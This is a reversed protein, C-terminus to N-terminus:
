RAGIHAPPQPHKHYLLSPVLEPVCVPPRPLSVAASASLRAPRQRAHECYTPNAATIGRIIVCPPVSPRIIHYQRSQRPSAHPIRVRVPRLVQGRASPCAPAARRAFPLIKFASERFPPPPHPISWRLRARPSRVYAEGGQPRRGQRDLLFCFRFYSLVCM